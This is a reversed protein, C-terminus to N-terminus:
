ELSFPSKYSPYDTMEMMQNNNKAKKEKSPFLLFLYFHSYFDQRGDM